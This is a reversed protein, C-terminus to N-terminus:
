KLEFEVYLDHGEGGMDPPTLAVKHRLRFLGPMFSKIRSMETSIGVVEYPMNLTRYPNGTSHTNEEPTLERWTEGDFYDFFPVGASYLTLTLYYLTQCVLQTFVVIVNFVQFLM